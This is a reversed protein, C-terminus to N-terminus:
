FPCDDMSRVARVACHTQEALFALADQASTCVEGLAFLQDVAPMRMQQLSGNKRTCRVVWEFGDAPDVATAFYDNPHARVVNCADNMMSLWHGALNIHAPEFFPDFGMEDSQTDGELFEEVQRKSPCVVPDCNMSGNLLCSQCFPTNM